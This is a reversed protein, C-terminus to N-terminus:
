RRKLKKLVFEKVRQAAEYATEADRWTFEPYDGPYRTTVYFDTLFKAEGM